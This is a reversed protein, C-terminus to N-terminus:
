CCHLERSSTKRIKELGTQNQYLAMSDIEAEPFRESLVKVEPLIRGRQMKLLREAVGSPSTAGDWVIEDVINGQDDVVRSLRWDVLIKM